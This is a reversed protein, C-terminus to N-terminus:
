NSSDAESDINDSSAEAYTRKENIIISQSIQENDKEFFGLMKNQVEVAKVFIGLQNNIFAKDKANQLDLLQRKFTIQLEESIANQKAEKYNIIKPIRLINYFEASATDNNADPFHHQYAARGNFGNILWEDIVLKYKKLTSEKM